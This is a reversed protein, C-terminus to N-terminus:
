IKGTATTATTIQQFWTIYEMAATLLKGYIALCVTTNEILLKVRNVKHNPNTIDGPYETNKELKSLLKTLSTKIKELGSQYQRADDVLSNLRSYSNNYCKIFAESTYGLETITKNQEYLSLLKSSYNIDCKSYVITGNYVTSELPKLVIGIYEMNEKFKSNYIQETILFQPPKIHTGDDEPKLLSIELIQETVSFISIFDNLTSIINTLKYLYDTYDTLPIGQSIQIKSLNEIFTPNNKNKAIYRINQSVISLKYVIFSIMKKIASTFIGIISTILKLLAKLIIVIINGIDALSEEGRFYRCYKNLMDLQIFDLNSIYEM